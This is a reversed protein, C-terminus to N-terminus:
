LKTMTTSPIVEGLQTSVADVRVANVTVNVTESQEGLELTANLQLASDADMQIGAHKQPKFGEIQLTVDYRGVALKPFSYLGQTDTVTTFTTGLVTNTATVTVGPIVGGSPDKVVGSLTGGVQASAFATTWQILSICILTVRRLM